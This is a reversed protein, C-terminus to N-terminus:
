LFIKDALLAFFILAFLRLNKVTPQYKERFPKQILLILVIVFLIATVSYSQYFFLSTKKIDAHNSAASMFLVVAYMCCSILCLLWGAKDGYFLFMGGFICAVSLLINLHNTQVIQLYTINGTMVIGSSILGYVNSVVSYLTYMGWLTILCGIIKEIVSWKKNM